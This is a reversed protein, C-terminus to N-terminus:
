MNDPQKQQQRLPQQQHNIMPLSFHFTAGKEKGNNSNNEAWIRGGHAEVISKSIYLGLGTGKFSKTAFKTFLRPLIEPDIGVGTDKISVIIEKQNNDNNIKKKIDIAADADAVTISISGGDDKTFKVANNLLNFIVQSIRMKDAEIIFTDYRQSAYLFKINKTYEFDPDTKIDNINNIIVENIDFRERNLKLSHSEIRTVDLIDDTLRSLRKANRNIVNIFQSYQTIDGEKKSQLLSSLSLIPQIPTRLEHAAINIFESKMRDAEKLNEYQIHEKWLLEFFSRSSYVSVKSNSYVVFGIAESFNEAKPEKLEFRLFKTNDVIFLGSHSSGGNLIRINPAKESIEKIIKSNEDSIPSIIRVSAGKNSAEILNDLIGLRDARIIARNNAFLLLAEKKVSRALDTYIGVAKKPDSIVQLFESELGEEVERIKKEVPIAKNWLTEFISQQQEVIERINSYIAQQPDKLTLSGLYEKENLIFNAEIEDMHRLAVNKVKMLDKCYNINEKTIEFIYRQRIGRNQAAIVILKGVSKFSFIKALFKSNGCIHVEYKANFFIDLLGNIVDTSHM